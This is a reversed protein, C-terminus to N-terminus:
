EESIATATTLRPTTGSSVAITPSVTGKYLLVGAGTSATGIGFHTITNTGATCAPFSITAAPNVTSTTVTWTSGNRPMSVRAYGTYNAESTNQSGAEGPDGTHLSVFLASALSSGRLGVGDGVTAFDANTFLLQLLGTEWANTKSM